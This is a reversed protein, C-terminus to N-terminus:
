KPPPLKTIFKAYGSEYKILNLSHYRKLNLLDDMIYPSLEEKLELYNKKDCGSILMYSTNASRLEERIINIQELYMCSIIFKAGFKACQSLKSRILGQAHPVQYLEDVVVNLKKRSYRDPIEWARVQLAVWLKTMWYTTFIDREEPTAFMIEPMKIFIAQNRQIEYVLDINDSCDRKLMLEMYANKKLKNFRDLIGSILHHKTGIVKGTSKDKDDLERLANIYEELNSKQGSPVSEIFAARISYDQLIDFVNKVSTSQIFAVLCAAELYRDMKVSLGKDSTNISDILFCVQATQAKANRYTEFLGPTSKIENYGLGQIMKSKSLDIELIKDKPIAKKIDASLSCNEVYDIVMLCEDNTVADRSLNGLLTTKGSRTPGVVCLTLNKYEKDTSLYAKQTTGRYVSQGICMVGTRLEEPIATELVNIKEINKHQELLTRGPLEILNQCEEASMKNNIAGSVSFTDYRIQNSSKIKKYILENDESISKFAEAVSIANNLKRQMDNSDSQVIIQTNLILSDKKSLTSKSLEKKNVAVLNTIAAELFSTSKTETKSFISNFGEFLGQLIEKITIATSKFLYQLSLVERDLPENNNFRNMTKEYQFRWNGQYTPMFNYFVGVRDGEKLIDLVNLISNLPENCKKDLSLSLADENRYCLSYNLANQSFANFQSVEMITIKAWTERLKEEFLKKYNEPVIFYFETSQPKIDIFFACKAAIDVKWTKCDYKIRQNISRYLFHIAKAINTSNYNRISTDPVLRLFAYKPHILQFYESLKISKM